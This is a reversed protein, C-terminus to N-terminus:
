FLIFSIEEKYLIELCISGCHNEVVDDNLNQNPLIASLAMNVLEDDNVELLSHFAILYTQLHFFYHFDLYILFYQNDM